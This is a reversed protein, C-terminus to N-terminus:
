KSRLFAIIDCKKSAKSPIKLGRAKAKDRLEAITLAEYGRPKPKSPTTKAKSKSKSKGKGGDFGNAVADAYENLQQPSLNYNAGYWSSAWDSGAM